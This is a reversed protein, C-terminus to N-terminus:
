SVFNTVCSRDGERIFVAVLELSQDGHIQLLFIEWIRCSRLGACRFPHAALLRGNVRWRRSRRTNRRNRGRQGGDGSNRVRQGGSGSRSSDASFEKRVAVM